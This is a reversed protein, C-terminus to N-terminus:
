LVDAKDSTGEAHLAQQASSVLEDFTTKNIGPVPAGIHQFELKNGNPATWSTRYFNSFMTNDLSGKFEPGHYEIGTVSLGTVADIGRLMIKEYENPEGQNKIKTYLTAANLFMPRGLKGTEINRSASAKRAQRIVISAALSITM